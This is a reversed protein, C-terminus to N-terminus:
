LLASGDAAKALYTITYLCTLVGATRDAEQSEPTKSTLRVDAGYGQIVPDTVLVRHVVEAVPDALLDWPDGRTFIEVNLPLEHVDTFSGLRRCSEDGAMVVIAPTLDRTISVERSRFVNAGAPTTGVLCAEARAVILERLTSM